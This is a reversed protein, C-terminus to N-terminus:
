QHSSFIYFINVPIIVVPYLLTTFNPVMSKLLSGQSLSGGFKGLRTASLSKQGRQPFACAFYKRCPNLCVYIVNSNQPLRLEQQIQDDGTCEYMESLVDSQPAFLQGCVLALSTEWSVFTLNGMSYPRDQDTDGSAAERQIFVSMM